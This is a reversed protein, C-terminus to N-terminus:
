YTYAIVMDQYNIEDFIDVRCRKGVISAGLTVASSVPISKVITQPNDVFYVDATNAATNVAVVVGKKYIVPILKGNQRKYIQNFSLEM